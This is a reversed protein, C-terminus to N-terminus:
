LDCSINIGCWSPPITLVSGVCGGGSEEEWLMFCVVAGPGADALAAVLWPGSPWRTDVIDFPEICICRYTKLM